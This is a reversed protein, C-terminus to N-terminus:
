HLIPVVDQELDLSIAKQGATSQHIRPLQVPLFLHFHAGCCKSHYLEADLWVWTVICVTVNIM